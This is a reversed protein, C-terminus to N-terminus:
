KVCVCVCVNRWAKGPGQLSSVETLATLWHQDGHFHSSSTVFVRLLKECPLPFACLSFCCFLLCFCVAPSKGPSVDVSAFDCLNVSQALSIGRLHLHISLIHHVFSVSVYQSLSAPLCLQLLTPLSSLSFSPSFSLFPFCIKKWQWVDWWAENFVAPFGKGVLICM